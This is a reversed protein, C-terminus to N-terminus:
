AVVPAVEVCARGVVREHDELAVRRAARELHGVACLRADALVRARRVAPAPRAGGPEDRGCGEREAWVARGSVGGRRPAVGDPGEGATPGTPGDGAVSLRGITSMGTM